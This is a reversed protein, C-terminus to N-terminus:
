LNAVLKTKKGEWNAWEYNRVMDPFTDFLADKYNKWLNMQKFIFNSWSLVYLLLHDSLGM